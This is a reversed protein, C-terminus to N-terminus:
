YQASNTTLWSTLQPDADATAAFSFAALLALVVTGLECMDNTSNSGTVKGKNVRRDLEKLTPPTAPWTTGPYGRGGEDFASRLAPLGPSFSQLGKPIIQPAREAALCMRLPKWGGEQKDSITITTKMPESNM